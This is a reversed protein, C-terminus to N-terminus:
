DSAWPGVHECIKRFLFRNELKDARREMARDIQSDNLMAHDLRDSVRTQDTDGSTAKERPGM